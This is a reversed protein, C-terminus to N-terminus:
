ALQSRRLAATVVAIPASPEYCLRANLEDAEARPNQLTAALTSGMQAQGASPSAAFTLDMKAIDGILFLYLVKSYFL